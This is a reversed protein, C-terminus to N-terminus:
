NTNNYLCNKETKLSKFMNNSLIKTFQYEMTVQGNSQDNQKIM